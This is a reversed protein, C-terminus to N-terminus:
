SSTSNSSAASRLSCSRDTLTSTRELLRQRAELRLAAQLFSWAAYDTVTRGKDTLTPLDGSLVSAYVRQADQARHHRVRRCM